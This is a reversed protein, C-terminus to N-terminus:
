REQRAVEEIEDVMAGFRQPSRTTATRNRSGEAGERVDQTRRGVPEDPALVEAHRHRHRRHGVASRAFREERRRRRPRLDRAAAKRGADTRDQTKPSVKGVLIDGPRVIRASASSAARRRSQPAGKRQRESHRAHVRRPRAEDRSNRRRVRRHSDVHLRREQVLEESIIIADEFNFGDWSM